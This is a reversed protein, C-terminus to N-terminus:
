GDGFLWTLGRWVDDRWASYSHGGSYERYEVSHGARRLLPHMRRNGELLREFRGCDMWVALPRRPPQRALEFVVFDSGEISFAGSQSLVRGFVEPVRLGAYLAMLGGLSAGLIAHAGPEHREDVLHLAGRALPLVRTLLFALTAESCAYEVTRAHRGNAVFALAVPRMRGQAVLNDVLTALRTRQLYDPGDLVMVLPWPGPAAPAYLSVARRAGVAWEHTEVLHRSVRGRAGGPPPRALPTPQGQPMYFFHNRGGLGNTVTRRNLPDAVRQGRTDVLAYEVYADAPLRLTRTWLTSAVQRLPLPEGAWDQFDGTLAVPQRGRWVFTARDGEVLPTGAEAARAWLAQADM